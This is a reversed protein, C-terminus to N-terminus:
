LSLLPRVQGTVDKAEQLLSEYTPQLYELDEELKQFFLFVVDLEDAMRKKSTKQIDSTVIRTTVPINSTMIASTPPMNSTLFVYALDLEVAKLKRELYAHSVM